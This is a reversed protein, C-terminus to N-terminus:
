LFFFLAMTLIFLPITNHFLHKIDSHIFPSLFIGRLGKISRPQIGLYNFDFGFRIEFWFVLWVILVFLLPYGIVGTSFIFPERQKLM